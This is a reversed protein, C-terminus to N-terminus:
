IWVDIKYRGDKVLQKMMEKGIIDDFCARVDRSMGTADGCVYIVCNSNIVYDCIDSKHARIMDQVYRPHQPDSFRSFAVRLEMLTRDAQMEELIDKYIFDEDPHRCGFFLRARGLKVDSTKQMERRHLLFGLFPSIGTGAAVMMISREPDEPLRFGSSSRKQIEVISDRKLSRLYSTCLGSRSSRRNAELPFDVSSFAFVLDSSVCAGVSYSRTKLPPLHQLLTEFRPHCSPFNYLIDTINLQPLRIYKTFDASGERSSLQLLRQKEEENITTEALHRLFAKKPISRLELHKTLLDRITSILPLHKPLTRGEFGVIREVRIKVDVDDEKCVRNILYDIDDQHNPCRINFSDGPVYEFSQSDDELILTIETVEKVADPSTLVKSSKLKMKLFEEQLETDESSRVLQIYTTSLPPLTLKIDKLEENWILSKKQPKNTIKLTELQNTVVQVETLVSKLKKWLDEIWEDVAEEQDGADDAFRVPIFPDCGCRKLEEFLKKPGGCFTSYNSDGLGLLAFRLKALSNTEKKKLKDVFIKANDPLDGDGTTSCIFIALKVKDINFGNEECDKLQHLRCSFGQFISDEQLSEAIAQAQGTQSGYLIYVEDNQLKKLTSNENNM